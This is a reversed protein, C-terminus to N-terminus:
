EENKEIQGTGNCNKCPLSLKIFKMDQYVGIIYTGTGKCRKCDM